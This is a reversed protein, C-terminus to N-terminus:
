PEEPSTPRGEPLALAKSRPAPVCSHFDAGGAGRRPESALPSDVARTGKSGKSLVFDLTLRVPCFHPRKRQLSWYPIRGLRERSGPDM